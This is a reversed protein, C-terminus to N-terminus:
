LTHSRDGFGFGTLPMDLDRTLGIVKFLEGMEAPSTLRQVQNALPLYRTLDDPNEESLLAPLGAGMLFMAQSTYGALSLGAELGADAVATFDVHSTIDQLGPLYLPDPHARHRYHCMLTGGGRQPHYFEARPFGYDIMLILGRTLHQGLTRTFAAASLGVESRYVGTAPVPLTTAVERLPGAPLPRTSLALQGDTWEVGVEHPEGDRWEVLNVPIADLVENGLMVGTFKTPLTDLWALRPLLEPAEQEFRARQRERLDASVELLYYHDPLADLAALERLLDLALKGSGPGFELVDGGGAPHGLASLTEHVQRALTRGFLASLEPATTFDGDPGLKITGNSYYGLGPAYLALSQYRDFPLWGGAADIDARIAELLRASLAAADPSPAPLTDTSAPVQM